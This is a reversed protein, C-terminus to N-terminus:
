VVPTAQPTQRLTIQTQWTGVMPQLKKLLPGPQAYRLSASLSQNGQALSTPTPTAAKGQLASTVPPLAFVGALLVLGIAFSLVLSKKVLPKKM